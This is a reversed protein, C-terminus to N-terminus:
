TLTDQDHDLNASTAVTNPVACIQYEGNASFESLSQKVDTIFTGDCTRYSVTSYIFNSNGVEVVRGDGRDIK